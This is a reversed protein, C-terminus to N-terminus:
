KRIEEQLMAEMGDHNLHSQKDRRGGHEEEIIDNM